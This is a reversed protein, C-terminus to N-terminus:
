SIVNQIIYNYDSDLIKKSEIDLLEKNKNSMFVLKRLGTLDLDDKNKIPSLNIDRVDLDSSISDYKFQHNYLFLAKYFIDNKM